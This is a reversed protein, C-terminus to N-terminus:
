GILRRRAMRYNRWAPTPWSHGAGGMYSISLGKPADADIVARSHKDTVLYDASLYVGDAKSMGLILTMLAM